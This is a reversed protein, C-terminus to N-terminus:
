TSIADWASRPARGGTLAEGLRPGESGPLALFGEPGWYPTSTEALRPTEPSSNLYTYKSLTDAAFHSRIGREM